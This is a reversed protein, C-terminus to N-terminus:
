KTQFLIKNSTSNDDIFFRKAINSLVKEIKKAKNNRKNLLYYFSKTKCLDIEKEKFVFKSLPKENNHYNLFLELYNINFFEKLWNSSNKYLIKNLTERNSDNSKSRFKPSIDMELINKICYKKLKCFFDHNVNSKIKYDVPKFDEKINEKKLIENTLNIIFNFFHNQIKLVVNDDSSSDHSKQSPKETKRGRKKNSTTSFRKFKNILNNDNPREKLIKNKEFPNDLNNKSKGNNLNPPLIKDKSILSNDYKETYNDLSFLQCLYERSTENTQNISFFSDIYILNDENEKNYKDLSSLNCLNKGSEENTQNPSFSGEKSIHSYVKDENFNDEDLIHPFISQINRGTYLLNSNENFYEDLSTM